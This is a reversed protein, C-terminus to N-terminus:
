AEASQGHQEAYQRSKEKADPFLENFRAVSATIADNVKLQVTLGAVRLAHGLAVHDSSGHAVIAVANVGLLPAGGTNRYDVNKKFAKLLNAVALYQLKTILTRSFTEEFGEKLARGIGEMMKLVVNGTFGDTIVVEALGTPIDRGECYGVYNIADKVGRLAANAARTVDTGKSDEEGNALISIRPRAKGQMVRMYADAIFAWQMLYSPTVVTNAGADMMLITGRPTPLLTGIAPRMCGKVRGFVVLATGMYAGSNGASVVASAEGSKVLDCAVRMSTTKKRVVASVKDDMTAVDAAHVIRVRKGLLELGGQKRLEEHLLKEDGVMIVNAGHVRVGNLAGAVTVDPGRDAGMADFAVWTGSPAGTSQGNMGPHSMGNVM